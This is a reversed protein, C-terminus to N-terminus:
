GVFINDVTLFSVQTIQPDKYQMLDVLALLTYTMIFSRLGITVFAGLGTKYTGEGKYNVGVAKGFGDFSVLFRIISSM